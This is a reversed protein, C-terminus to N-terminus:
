AQREVPVLFLRTVTDGAADRARALGEFLPGAEHDEAVVVVTVLGGPHVRDGAHVGTRGGGELVPMVTYGPAGLRVLEARLGDLREADAVVFLLKM